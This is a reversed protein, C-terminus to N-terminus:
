TGGGPLLEQRDTCFLVAGPDLYAKSEETGSFRAREGIRVARTLYPNLLAGTVRVLIDDMLTM